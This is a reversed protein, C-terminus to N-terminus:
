PSSSLILLYGIIAFLFRQLVMAISKSSMTGVGTVVEKIYDVQFHRHLPSWNDLNEVDLDVGILFPKHSTNGHIEFLLSSNLKTM